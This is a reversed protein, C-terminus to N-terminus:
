NCDGCSFYPSSARDYIWADRRHVGVGYSIPPDLDYSVIFLCFLGCLTCPMLAFFMSSTLMYESPPPEPTGSSLAYDDEELVIRVARFDDLPMHESM